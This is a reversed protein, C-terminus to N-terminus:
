HHLTDFISYNVITSQYNIITFLCPLITAKEYAEGHMGWCTLFSKQHELIGTHILLFLFISHPQLTALVHRPQPDGPGWTLGCIPVLRATPSNGMAAPNARWSWDRAPPAAVVAASIRSINGKPVAILRSTLGIVM